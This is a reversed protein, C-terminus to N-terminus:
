WVSNYIQNWKRGLSSTFFTTTMILKSSPSLKTNSDRSSEAAKILAANVKKRCHSALFNVGLLFLRGVIKNM